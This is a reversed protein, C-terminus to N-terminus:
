KTLFNQSKIPFYTTTTEGQDLVLMITADLRAQICRPEHADRRYTKHQQSFHRVLRLIPRNGRYQVNQHADRKIRQFINLTMVLNIDSVIRLSYTALTRPYIERM